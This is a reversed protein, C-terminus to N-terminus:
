LREAGRAILALLAFGGLIVLVFAVDAMVV